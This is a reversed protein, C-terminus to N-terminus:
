DITGVDSELLSMIAEIDNIIFKEDKNRSPAGHVRIFANYKEFLKDLVKSTLDSKEVSDSNVTMYAADFLEFQLLDRGIITYWKKLKGYGITSYQKKIDSHNGITKVSYFTSVWRNNRLEDLRANIKSRWQKTDIERVKVTSIVSAYKLFVNDIKQLKDEGLVAQIIKTCGMTFSQRFDAYVRSQLFTPPNCNDIRAPLIVFKEDAEIQRIKSAEYEERVWKSDMSDKSFFAIVYDARRIGNEIEAILSSGVKLRWEDFWVDIGRAHLAIAVREVLEADKHSYSLFVKNKDTM